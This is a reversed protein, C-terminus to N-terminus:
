SVGLEGDLILVVAGRLVVDDGQASMRVQVDDHLFTRARLTDVATQRLTGDLHDAPGSLVIESLDSFLGQDIFGIAQTNGVEVVDPTDNSQLAAVYTESVDAWTKEELKLTWGEHESEFTDVLYERATEPTDTGVVWVTLEGTEAAPADSEGAAPTGGGSCGALVIAGVGLLGLGAYAKKNM